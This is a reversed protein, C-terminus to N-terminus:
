RQYCLIFDRRRWTFRSPFRILQYGSGFLIHPGINFGGTSGIGTGGTQLTVGNTGSTAVNIIDSPTLEVLVRETTEESIAVTEAAGGVAFLSGQGFQGFIPIYKVDGSEKKHRSLVLSLFSVRKQLLMIQTSSYNTTLKKKHGDMELSVGLSDVLLVMHM